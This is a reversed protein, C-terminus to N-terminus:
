VMNEEPMALGTAITFEAAGKGASILNAAFVLPGTGNPRLSIPGNANTSEIHNTGIQINGQTVSPASITAVIVADSNDTIDRAHLKGDGNDRLIINGVAIQKTVPVAINGGISLNGQITVTSSTFTNSTSAGNPMMYQPSGGPTTFTFGLTDHLGITGGGINITNASFYGTRWRLTPSGIDYTVNSSPLLNGTVNVNALDLTVSTTGYILAGVSQVGSAIHRIVINDSQLPIETFAIQTGNVTYATEPEQLTGNIAVILDSSSVVNSLLSFTNAVGNPSLVQTTMAATTNEWMTGDYAELSGTETNFRIYGVSVNTPRQATTGSPIGLANTGIIQVLGSGPPDLQINGNTLDTSITNNSFTINGTGGGVGFSGSYVAGSVYVSKGTFSVGNPLNTGIFNLVGSQYDFFWEDSNGSGAAFVQTGASSANGASNSLNIYVKVQYTSGFEPSVWDTVNTKWTRNTSATADNTCEIPLSTTYVTVISTNAGPLTGPISASDKMVKDARLQLPSPIAENYGEKNATTDTKTAGYGVKKWLYDVKQTDTIAM